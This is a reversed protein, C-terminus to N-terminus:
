FGHAATRLVEQVEYCELSLPVATGATCIGELHSNGLLLLLGPVQGQGIIRWLRVTAVTRRGTM